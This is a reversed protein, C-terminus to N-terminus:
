FGHETPWWYEYKPTEDWGFQSYWEPKKFMLTGRHGAHFKEVGLWAPMPTTPKVKVRKAKIEMFWPLTNDQYGRRIWERCMIEGYWILADDYGCWMKVAPHNVWGGKGDKNRLALWIQKAEIRQKGLRRYDLCQASLPFSPYPLFTQM